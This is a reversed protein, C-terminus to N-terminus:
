REWELILFSPKPKPGDPVNRLADAVQHPLPVYVPTGTKAQYLLLNDNILRTRELTIADRIRLGSWRM